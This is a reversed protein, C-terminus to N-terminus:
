AIDVPASKLTKKHEAIKIHRSFLKLVTRQTLPRLRKVLDIVRLASSCIVLVQPAGFTIKSKGVTSSVATKVLDELYTESGWRPENEARYMHKEHMAIDDLELQTIGPYAKKMYKNWLAAQEGLERPVTSKSTPSPQESDGKRQKKKQKRKQKKAVGAADETDSSARQRKNANLETDSDGVEGHDSTSSEPVFDGDLAFDDELADAM